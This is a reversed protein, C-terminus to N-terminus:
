PWDPQPSDLAEVSKVQLEKELIADSMCCQQTLPCWLQRGLLEGSGCSEQNMEEERGFDWCRLWKERRRLAAGGLWAAWRGRTDQGESARFVFERTQNMNADSCPVTFSSSLCKFYLPFCM